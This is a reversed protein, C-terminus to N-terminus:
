PNRHLLFMKRFAMRQMIAKSFKKFLEPEVPKEPIIPKKADTHIESKHHIPQEPVVVEPSKVADKMIENVDVYMKQAM